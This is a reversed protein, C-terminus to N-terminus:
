WARPQPWRAVDDGPGPAARTPARHSSSSMATPNPADGTERDCPSTSSSAGSGRRFRDCRWRQQLPKLRSEGPRRAPRPQLWEWLRLGYRPAAGPPALVSPAHHDYPLPSESACRGTAVDQLVRSQAPDGVGYLSPKLGQSWAFRGDGCLSSPPTQKGFGLLLNGALPRLYRSLVPVDLAAVMRPDAVQGVDVVYLPDNGLFAVKHLM